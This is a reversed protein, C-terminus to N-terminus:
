LLKIAVAMLILVYVILTGMTSVWYLHSLRRSEATCNTM